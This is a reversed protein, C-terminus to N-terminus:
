STCWPVLATIIVYGGALMFLILSADAVVYARETLRLGHFEARWWRM